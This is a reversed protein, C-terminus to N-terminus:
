PNPTPAVSYGTHENSGGAEAIRASIHCPGHKGGFGSYEVQYM